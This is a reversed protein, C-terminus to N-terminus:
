RLLKQLEDLNRGAPARLYNILRTHPAAERLDHVLLNRYRAYIRQTALEFRARLEPNTITKAYKATKKLAREIRPLNGQQALSKKDHLREWIYATLEPRASRWRWVDLVYDPVMDIPVRDVARHVNRAIQEVIQEEVEKTSKPIHVYEGDHLIFSEELEAKKLETAEEAALEYAERDGSTLHAHAEMVKRRIKEARETQAERLIDPMREAGGYKLALVGFAQDFSRGSLNVGVLARFLSNLRTRQNGTIPHQPGVKDLEERFSTFTRPLFLDSLGRFFHSLHGTVPQRILTMEKRFPDIGTTTRLLLNGVPQTGIFQSAANLLAGLGLGAGAGFTRELDPIVLKEIATGALGPSFFLVNNMLYKGVYLSAFGQETPVYLRNWLSSLTRFQTNHNELNSVDNLTLGRAALSALNFAPLASLLMLARGPNRTAVNKFIRLAEFAFGPVMAGFVPIKQLARVAPPVRAYNQCYARVDAMAAEATLGDQVKTAFVAYRMAPDIDSYMQSLKGSLVARDVDTFNRWVEQVAATGTRKIWGVMPDESMLGVTRKAYDEELVRFRELQTLYKKRVDHAITPKRAGRAASRNFERAAEDEGLTQELRAVAERVNERRRLLRALEADRASFIRKFTELGRSGKAVAGTGVPTGISPSIEGSRIFEGFLRMEPGPPTKLEYMQRGFRFYDRFNKWFRPRLPNVGSLFASTVGGMTNTIWTEANKVILNHYIARYIRNAASGLGGPLGQILREMAGLTWIQGYQDKTAQHIADMVTNYHRWSNMDRFLQKHVHKGELAGWERGELKATWEGRRYVPVDEISLRSMGGVQALWNFYRHKLNDLIMNRLADYRIMGDDTIVGLGAYEADTLIPLPKGRFHDKKLKGSQIQERQWAKAAEMANKPTGHDELGFRVERLVRSEPDIHFLRVYQTSRKAKLNHYHAKSARPAVYAVDGEGLVGIRQLEKRYQADITTRPDWTSERLRSAETEDIRGARRAHEVIAGRVGEEELLQSTLHSEIRPNNKLFLPDTKARLVLERDAHTLREWHQNELKNVLHELHSGKARLQEVVLGHSMHMNWGYKPLRMMDFLNYAVTDDAIANEWLQTHRRINEVRNRLREELSHIRWHKGKALGDTLYERLALEAARGERVLAGAEDLNGLALAERRRRTLNRALQRLGTARKGGTLAEHADIFHRPIGFKDAHRGHQELIDVAVRALQRRESRNYGGSWGHESGRFETSGRLGQRQAAALDHGGTQTKSRLNEASRLEDRLASVRGRLEPRAAEPLIELRMTDLELDQQAQLIRNRQKRELVGHFREMEGFRAQQDRWAMISEVAEAGVTPSEEFTKAAKDFWTVAREVRERDAGLKEGLWRVMRARVSPHRGQYASVQWEHLLDAFGPGMRAVDEIPLGELRAIRELEREHFWSREVTSRVPEPLNVKGPPILVPRAIDTPLDMGLTLMQEVNGISIPLGAEARSWISAHVSDLEDLLTAPTKEQRALEARTQDWLRRAVRAQAKPARRIARRVARASTGYHRIHAPDTGLITNIVGAPNTPDSAIYVGARIPAPIRVDRMVKALQTRGLQIAKGAKGLAYFELPRKEAFEPLEAVGDWVAAFALAVDDWLNARGTERRTLQETWFGRSTPRLGIEDSLLRAWSRGPEDLLLRSEAEAADGPTALQDYPPPDLLRDMLVADVPTIVEHELWDSVAGLGTAESLKSLATPIMNIWQLTRSNESLIGKADRTVRYMRDQERRLEQRIKNTVEPEALRPLALRNEEIFTQQREVDRTRAENWYREYAEALGAPGPIIVRGVRVSGTKMALGFARFRRGKESYSKLGEVFGPTPAVGMERLFAEPDLALREQVDRFTNEVAQNYPDRVSIGNSRLWLAQNLAGRFVPSSGFPLRGDRSFAERPVSFGLGQYLLERRGIDRWQDAGWLYARIHPLMDEATADKGPRGTIAEYLQKVGEGRTGDPDSLEFGVPSHLFSEADQCLQYHQRPTVLYLLEPQRLTGLQARHVYTEVADDDVAQGISRDLAVELAAAGVLQATDEAALLKDWGHGLEQELRGFVDQRFDAPTTSIDVGRRSMEGILDFFGAEWRDTEPSLAATGYNLLLPEFDEEVNLRPMRGVVWPGQAVAEERNTPWAKPEPPRLDFDPDAPAPGVPDVPQPGRLREQALDWARDAVSDAVPASPPTVPPTLYDSPDPPM